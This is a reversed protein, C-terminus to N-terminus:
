SAARECEHHSGRGTPSPRPSPPAQDDSRQEIFEAVERRVLASDYDVTIVHYCNELWVLRRDQSAVNRTILEANFPPVTNDQRSHIVLLPQQVRGLLQRTERMLRLLQVIGATGCRGYAVHREWQRQDKIDPRGWTHGRALWGVFLLGLRWDTLRVPAALSIVGSVEASRRAAVNLALTGGMSLGCLFVRKGAKRLDDLASEVDALWDRYTCQAMDQPRTGHGALLLGRTTIGRDALHSGLDRLEHASGAFGHVLLCANQGRAEFYFPEAGAMLPAQTTDTMIRSRREAYRSALSRSM